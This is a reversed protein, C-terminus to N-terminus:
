NSFIIIENKMISFYNEILKQLRAGEAYKKILNEKYVQNSEFYKIYFNYEDKETYGHLEHM